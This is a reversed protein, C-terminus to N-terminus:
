AAEGRLRTFIPCAKASASPALNGTDKTRRDLKLAVWNIFDREKNDLRFAAGMPNKIMTGDGLIGGEIVAKERSTLLISRGTTYDGTRKLSAPIHRQVTSVSKGCLKALEARNTIGQKILETLRSSLTQDRTM